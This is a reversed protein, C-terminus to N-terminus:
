LYIHETLQHVSRNEIRLISIIMRVKGDGGEDIVVQVM